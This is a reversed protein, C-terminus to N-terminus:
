RRLVPSMERIHRRFLMWRGGPTKFGHLTGIAAQRIVEAESLKLRQAASRVTALELTGDLRRAYVAMPGPRSSNSGIRLLDIVCARWLRNDCHIHLDCTLKGRTRWLSVAQRSVGFIAAVAHDDVPEERELCAEIGDALILRAGDPRRIHSLGYKRALLENVEAFTVGLLLSARQATVLPRDDSLVDDVWDFPSIWAPLRRRLVTEMSSPQVLRRRLSDPTTVCALEGSHALAAVSRTSIGLIRSSQAFSLGPPNARAELYAAVSADSVRWIEGLLQIAALRGTYIRDLIVRASRKLKVAAEEVTLLVIRGSFLDDISPEQDFNRSGSLLQLVATAGYYYGDRANGTAPIKGKRRWAGVTHENLRFVAALRAGTVKFNRDQM